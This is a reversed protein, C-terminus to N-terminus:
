KEEYKNFIKEDIQKDTSPQAILLVERILADKDEM